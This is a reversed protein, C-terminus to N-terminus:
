EKLFDDILKNIEDPQELMLNHSSNSIIVQKSNKILTNLENGNKMIGDTEGILILTPQKINSIENKDPWKMGLLVSSFIFLSNLDTKSKEYEIIKSDTNIHYSSGSFFYSLIPRTLNLFFTPLQWYISKTGSPLESSSGLLILKSISMKVDDQQSLLMTICSGFSHGIIYNKKSKYKLYIQKFDSLILDTEYRSSNEFDKYSSGHGVFDIGVITYMKSFYNIQFRFQEIRGGLGHVFFLVEDKNENEIHILNLKTNNIEILSSNEEILKSGIM